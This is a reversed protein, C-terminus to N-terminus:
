IVGIIQGKSSRIPQHYVTFHQDVKKVSHADAAKLHQLLSEQHQRQTHDDIGQSTCIAEISNEANIQYFMITLRFEASIDNIGLQWERLQVQSIGKKAM